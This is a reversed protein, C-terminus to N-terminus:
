KTVQATETTVKREQRDIKNGVLIQHPSDSVYDKLEEIWNNVHDFSAEHSVDFVVLIGHAGRFYSRGM